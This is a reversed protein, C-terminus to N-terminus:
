RESVRSLKRRNTSAPPLANTTPNCLGISIAMWVIHRGVVIQICESEHVLVKIVVEVREGTIRAVGSYPFASARKAL